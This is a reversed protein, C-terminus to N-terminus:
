AAMVSDFIFLKTAGIVVWPTKTKQYLLESINRDEMFSLDIETFYDFSDVLRLTKLCSDDLGSLVTAGDKGPLWDSFFSRMKKNKESVGETVCLLSDWIADKIRRQLLGDALRPQFNVQAKVIMEHIKFSGNQSRLESILYGMDNIKIALTYAGQPTPYSMSILEKKELLEVPQLTSFKKYASLAFSYLPGERLPEHPSFPDTKYVFM